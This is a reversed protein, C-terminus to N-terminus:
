QFISVVLRELFVALPNKINLFMLKINIKSIVQSNWIWIILENNCEQFSYRAWYEFLWNKIYDQRKM